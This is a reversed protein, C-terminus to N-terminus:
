SQVYKVSQETENTLNSCTFAAQTNALLNTVNFVQVPQQIYSILNEFSTLFVASIQPRGYGISALSIIFFLPDYKPRGSNKGCFYM